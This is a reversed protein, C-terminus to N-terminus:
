KFVAIDGLTAKTGGHWEKIPSLVRDIEKKLLPMEKNSAPIAVGVRKEFLQARRDKGFIWFNEALERSAYFAKEPNDQSYLGQGEGDALAKIKKMLVKAEEFGVEKALWFDVQAKRCKRGLDQNKVRNLTVLVEAAEAAAAEIESTSSVTYSDRGTGGTEGNKFLRFVAPSVTEPLITDEKIVRSHIGLHKMGFFPHFQQYGGAYNYQTIGLTKEQSLIVERLNKIKKNFEAVLNTTNM